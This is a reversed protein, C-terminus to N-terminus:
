HDTPFDHENLSCRPGTPLGLRHGVSPGCFLTTTFSEPYLFMLTATLLLASGAHNEKTKPNLCDEM